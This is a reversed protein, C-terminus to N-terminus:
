LLQKSNPWFRLSLGWFHLQRYLSIHIWVAHEVWPPAIFYGNKFKKPRGGWFHGNPWLFVSFLLPKFVLHFFGRPRALFSIKGTNKYSVPLSGWYRSFPLDYSHLKGRMRVAITVNRSHKEIKFQVSDVKFGFIALKQLIHSFIALNSLFIDNEWTRITPLLHNVGRESRLQWKEITNKLRSSFM